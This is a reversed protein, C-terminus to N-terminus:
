AAAEEYSTKIHIQGAKKNEFKIDFWTDVGATLKSFQIETSGVTDNSGTDEEMM